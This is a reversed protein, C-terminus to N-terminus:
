RKSNKGVNDLDAYCEGHDMWSMDNDLIPDEKEIIWEGNSDM